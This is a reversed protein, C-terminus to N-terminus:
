AGLLENKFKEMTNQPMNRVQRLEAEAKKKDGISSYYRAKRLYMANSFYKENEVIKIIEDLATKMVDEKNNRYALDFQTLHLYVASTETKVLGENIDNMAADFDGLLDHYEAKMSALMQKAQPIDIKEMTRILEGMRNQADVSDSVSPYQHILSEFYPQIYYPNRSDQRYNEECLKEAEEYNEASIYANALERRAKPFNPRKMLAYKLNDIAKIPNGNIRHYFGKLFSKDEPKFGGYEVAEFFEDGMHERALSQCYYYHIEDVIEKDFFVIRDGDIIRKCLRLAKDYQRRNYHNVICKIYHSPIVYKEDLDSIDGNDIKARIVSYYQALDTQSVFDDDVTIDVVLRFLEELENGMALRRRFVVDKLVDNVRVYEGDAGVLECISVSIFTNVYDEYEPFKNYLAELVSSNVFDFTSLFVLLKMKNDTDVFMDLVVQSRDDAFERVESLHKMAKTIGMDQILKVVYFVQEPYGSLVNAINKLHGKDIDIGEIVCYEKLMLGRERSILEPMQIGFVCDQAKRMHLVYRSAVGFVIKPEVKQMVRIFWEAMESNPMVIVGNDNIFVFENHKQVEITLAAAKEIKEDMTMMALETINVSGIGLDAIKIIFDEISEYKDLTILNYEYSDEMINGKKLVHSMYAKRGIGSFASSADLCKLDEREFDARREEFREIEENRGIFFLNRRRLRPNQKWSIERMRAMIKNAAINSSLIPRINYQNKMWKPIRCDTHDIKPDVIIPYFTLINGEDLLSKARNREKKVWESDLAVDSIFLVFIDTRDLGKYIEELTEMGDEFTYKDYVCNDLGVRKAVHDVYDKDKSSHSLFVKNM